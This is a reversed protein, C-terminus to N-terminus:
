VEYEHFHLFIFPHNNKNGQILICKKLMYLLNNVSSSFQTLVCLRIVFNPSDGKMVVDSYTLGCNVLKVKM